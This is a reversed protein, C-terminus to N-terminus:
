RKWECSPHLKAAPVVVEKIVIGHSASKGFPLPLIGASNASFINNAKVPASAPKKSFHKPKVCVM